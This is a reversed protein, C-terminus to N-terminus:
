SMATSPTQAAAISTHACHFLHFLVKRNSRSPRERARACVCKYKYVSKSIHQMSRATASITSNNYANHKTYSQISHRLKVIIWCVQLSHFLNTHYPQQRVPIDCSNFHRRNTCHKKRTQTHQYPQKTIYSVINIHIRQFCQFARSLKHNMDYESISLDSQEWLVSWEGLLVIPFDSPDCTFIYERRSAVTSWLM